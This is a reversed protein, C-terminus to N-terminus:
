SETAPKEGAVPAAPSLDLERRLRPHDPEGVIELTVRVGEWVVNIPKTGLAERLRKTQVSETLLQLAFANIGLNLLLQMTNSM